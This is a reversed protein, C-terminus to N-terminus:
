LQILELFYIEKCLVEPLKQWIYNPSLTDNKM